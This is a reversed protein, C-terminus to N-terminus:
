MVWHLVANSFIADFSEDFHFETASQVLFEISPYEKKAKAIMDFSNDIGIIEAGSAAIFNTLYGTGCGLYLIRGGAQPDLTEVLDEGYKFVFDHKNDYLSANWKTNVTTSM